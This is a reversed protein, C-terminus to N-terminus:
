FPLQADDDDIVGFNSPYPHAAAYDGPRMPSGYNGMTPATTGGQQSKKTELFEVEDVKIETIWIKRDDKEYSRKKIRGTVAVKSGKDLFKACNEATKEWANCDIFLTERNEGWGEDVALTFSAVAKGTGTRRLEPAKTLRGIGIWKNM